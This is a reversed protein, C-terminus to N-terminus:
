FFCWGWSFFLWTRFKKLFIFFLFYVQSPYNYFKFSMADFCFLFFPSNLLGGNLWLVLPKSAPDSEAEVFYYFLSKHKKHDVTVYGAYQQFNVQPQGPLNTIKDVLNPHNHHYNHNHSASVNNTLFLCLQALILASIASTITM